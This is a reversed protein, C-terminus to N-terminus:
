KKKVKKPKEMEAKLEQEDQFKKLEIVKRLDEM